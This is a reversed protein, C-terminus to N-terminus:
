KDKILQLCYDLQNDNGYLISEITRHVIYHPILGRGKPIRLDIESTMIVNVLPVTLVLNTGKLYVKAFKLGNMVYYGGGIEEGLIVAGDKYLKSALESAMSQTESSVLVFLKGKFVISDNNEINEKSINWFGEKGEVPIYNEFLVFDPSFNSSYKFFSYTKNSKVMTEEQYEIKKKILRALLYSIDTGGYNFRLDLILNSVKNKSISDIFNTIRNISIEDWDCSQLSLYAINNQLMKFDLKNEQPALLKPIVVKKPITARTLSKVIIIQEQKNPKKIKIKYSEKFGDLAITLWNNFWWSNQLINNKWEDTQVDNYMLPKMQNIIELIPKEDISIIESGIPIINKASRDAVIICRNDVYSLWLPFKYKLNSLDENQIDTHSCAIKAVIPMLISQFKLNSMPKNLKNETESFLKSLEEKKINNYLAPHGEELSEKFIKFASHLTTTDIIDKQKIGTILKELHNNENLLPIGIDSIKGNANSMSIRIGSDKLLVRFYGVHGIIDGKKVKIGTKLLSDECILGGYNITSGDKLKLSVNRMLNEECFWTKNKELNSKINEKFFSLNLFTTTNILDPSMLCIYNNAVIGDAVAYVPTKYPASIFYGSNFVILGTIPNTIYGIKFEVKGINQPLPWLFINQSFSVYFFFLFAFAITNRLNLFVNKM